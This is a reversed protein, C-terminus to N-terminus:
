SIEKSKPDAPLLELMLELKSVPILANLQRRKRAAEIKRQLWPRLLQAKKRDIWDYVSDPTPYTM